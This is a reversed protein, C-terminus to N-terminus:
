GEFRNPNEFPMKVVERIIITADALATSINAFINSPLKQSGERVSLCYFKKELIETVISTVGTVDL